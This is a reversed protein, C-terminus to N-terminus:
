NRKIKNREYPYGAKDMLDIEENIDFPLYKDEVEIKDKEIDIMSYYGPSKLGMTGVCYFYQKGDSFSNERHEHGFFIYDADNKPFMKKRTEFTKEKPTDIVNEDGNFKEWPYHTFYFTKHNYKLTLDKQWSLVIEKNENSVHKTMYELQLLKENTFEPLDVEPVHDCVYLDNNGVIKVCDLQNLLEICKNPRSCGICVDGLFIRKDACKWDQTEVLAKLSNLSGHIDSFVLIRM